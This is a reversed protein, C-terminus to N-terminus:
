RECTRKSGFTMFNDEGKVALGLLDYVIALISIEVLIRVLYVLFVYRKLLLRPLILNQSVHNVSLDCDAAFLKDFM